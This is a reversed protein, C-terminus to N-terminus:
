GRERGIHSPTLERDIPRRLGLVIEEGNPDMYRAFRRRVNSVLLKSGKIPRALCERLPRM